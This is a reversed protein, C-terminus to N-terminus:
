LDLECWVPVHDSPKEKAREDKDIGAGRLKDAAQPSLMLHDIRIGKNKPWAGGQYDWFSYQGGAGQCARYADTFGSNVLRRYAKRSEMLFLADSEWAKPDHVDEPEPIINYDGALVVPEEQALLADAHRSLDSMFSLKYDYKPGPAPNGNPCYISAVRVIGTKATIVAEIYRAQDDEGRGPIGTVVDEMPLRSLLAVGNYSKQGYVASGYGAEEFASAPFNETQCKLEQLCVVDPEAAKLWGLVLDLRTKVSNVNWTAIKM